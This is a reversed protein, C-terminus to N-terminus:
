CVNLPHASVVHTHLGAVWRVARGDPYSMYQQVESQTQLACVTDSVLAVVVYQVSVPLNGMGLSDGVSIMNGSSLCPYSSVKAQLQLLVM